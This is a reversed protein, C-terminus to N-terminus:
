HKKEKRLYSWSTNDRVTPANDLREQIKRETLKNHFDLYDKCTAHCGVTRKECDKCCCQVGYWKSSSTFM